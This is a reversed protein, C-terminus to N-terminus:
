ECLLQLRERNKRLFTEADAGDAAYASGTAFEAYESGAGATCVRFYLLFSPTKVLFQERRENERLHKHHGRALIEGMAPEAGASLGNVEFSAEPSTGTVYGEASGPFLQTLTDALTM